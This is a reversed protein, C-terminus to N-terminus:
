ARVSSCVVMCCQKHGCYAPKVCVCAALFELPMALAKSMASSLMCFSVKSQALLCGDVM